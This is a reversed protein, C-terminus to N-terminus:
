HVTLNINLNYSGSRFEPMIRVHFVKPVVTDGRSNTGNENRSYSQQFFKDKRGSHSESKVTKTSREQAHADFFRGDISRLKKPVRRRNACKPFHDVTKLSHHIQVDIEFSISIWRKLKERYFLRRNTFEQLAKLNELMWVKSKDVKRRLTSEKWVKAVFWDVVISWDSEFCVGKICLSGCDFVCCCCVVGNLVFM